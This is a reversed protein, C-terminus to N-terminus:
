IVNGICFYIGKRSHGGVQFTIEHSTGTRTNLRFICNSLIIELDLLTLTNYTILIMVRVERLPRHSSLRRRGGTRGDGYLDLDRPSGVGVVVAEKRLM